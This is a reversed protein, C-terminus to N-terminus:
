ETRISDPLHLNTPAYSRHGIRLIGSKAKDFVSSGQLRKFVGAAKQADWQKLLGMYIGYLVISDEIIAEPEEYDDVMAQPWAYYDIRLTGGDQAPRPYIGILDWAVPFWTEPDGATDIWRQQFRDLEEMSSVTLRTSDVHTWVRFPLMLDPALSRISYFTQAAKLPLFTSRRQSRVEGAIFEAAEDVLSNLQASTFFVPSDPDDNMGDLIRKKIEGRNM